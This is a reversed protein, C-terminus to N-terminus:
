FIEPERNRSTDYIKQLISIVKELIFNTEQVSTQLFPHLSDDNNIYPNYYINLIKELTDFTMISVISLGKQLGSYM